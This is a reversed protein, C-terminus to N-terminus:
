GCDWTMEAKDFNSKKLDEPSIVGSMIGADGLDIINWDYCSDIKFLCETRPDGLDRIDYQTFNAYGGITLYPTEKSVYESWHVKVTKGSKTKRTGFDFQELWDSIDKYKPKLEVNAKKKIIDVMVTEFRYDSLPMTITDPFMDFCYGKQVITEVGPMTLNKQYELGEKFLRVAYQNPWDSLNDGFVELIGEKPWDPLTVDKLNVQLILAMRDGKKTTPWEEGVPLYPIGGIKNKLPTPEDENFELRMCPKTTRAKYEEVMEFFLKNDM